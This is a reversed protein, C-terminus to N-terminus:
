ANFLFRNPSVLGTKVAYMVLAATNNVGLKSMINKRHTTVTHASLCLQEAIRTYSMGEAILSVIELERASLTLPECSLPEDPVEQMDVAEANLKELVKGCFFHEGQATQVVSDIVEEVCCDKKVYSRVGMRIANRVAMSAPDHTICVAKARRNKSVTRLARLGLDEGSHDILVIDVVNEDLFARLAQDDRVEGVIEVESIGAFVARMGLIGISSTDALLLRVM